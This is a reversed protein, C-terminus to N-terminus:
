RLYSVLLKSGEGRPRELAGCPSRGRQRGDQQCRHLCNRRPVAQGVLMSEKAADVRELAVADRRVIQQGVHQDAVVLALRPFSHQVAEAAHDLALDPGIAARRSRGQFAGPVRATPASTHNQGQPCLGEPFRAPPAM